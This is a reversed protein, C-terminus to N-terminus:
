RAPGKWLPNIQYGCANTLFVDGKEQGCDDMLKRRLRYIHTELTHTDLDVQYDWVADLLAARSATGEVNLLYDLLGTEKDTLKTKKGDARALTKECASFRWPGIARAADEVTEFLRRYFRVRALLVGLRLPFSLSEVEVGNFVSPPAGLVLLRHDRKKETIQKLLKEITAPSAERADTVDWIILPPLADKWAELAADMSSFSACYLANDRGGGTTPQVLQECIAQRLPEQPAVLGFLFM